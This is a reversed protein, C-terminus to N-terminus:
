PSFANFHCIFFLLSSGVEHQFINGKFLRYRDDSIEDEGSLYISFVIWPSWGYVVSVRPPPESCTDPTSCFEHRYSTISGCCCTGNFNQILTKCASGNPWPPEPGLSSQLLWANNIEHCQWIPSLDSQTGPEVRPSSVVKGATVEVVAHGWLCIWYKECPQLLCPSPWRAFYLACWGAIYLCFTSCDGFSPTPFDFLLIVVSRFSGGLHPTPM